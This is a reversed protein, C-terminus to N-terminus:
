HSVIVIALQAGGFKKEALVATYFHYAASFSRGVIKCCEVKAIDKILIQLWLLLVIGRFPRFITEPNIM